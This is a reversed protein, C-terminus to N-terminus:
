GDVLDRPIDVEDPADVESIDPISAVDLTDLAENALFAGAAAEDTFQILDLMM